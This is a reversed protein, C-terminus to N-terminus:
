QDRQRRVLILRESPLDFYMVGRDMESYFGLRVVDQSAWCTVQRKAEERVEDGLTERRVGRWECQAM